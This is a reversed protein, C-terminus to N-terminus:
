SGSSQDQRESGTTTKLGSRPLVLPPRGVRRAALRCPGPYLAPERWPM